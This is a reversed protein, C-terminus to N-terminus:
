KAKASFCDYVQLLPPTPLNKPDSANDYPVPNVPGTVEKEIKSTNNVTQDLRYYM